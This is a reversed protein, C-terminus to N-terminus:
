ILDSVVLHTKDQYLPSLKEMELANVIKSQREIELFSKMYEDLMSQEAFSNLAEKLRYHSLSIINASM